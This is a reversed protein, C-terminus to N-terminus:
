FLKSLGMEDNIRRDFTRDTRYLPAHQLYTKANVVELMFGVKSREASQLGPGAERESRIENANLGRGM